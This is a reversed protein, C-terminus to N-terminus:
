NVFIPRSSAEWILKRPSEHLFINIRNYEILQGFRMAQNGKGKFINSFIHIAMAQKGLQSM